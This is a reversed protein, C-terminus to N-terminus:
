NCKQRDAGVVNLQSLVCELRDGLAYDTQLVVDGRTSRLAVYSAPDAEYPDSQNGYVWQIFDSVRKVQDVELSILQDGLPGEYNVHNDYFSLETVEGLNNIELTWDQTEYISNINEPTPELNGCSLLTLFLAASALKILDM